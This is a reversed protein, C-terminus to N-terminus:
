HHHLWWYAAINYCTKLSFNKYFKFSERYLSCKDFPPKPQSNGNRPPPSKALRMLIKEWVYERMGLRGDSVIVCYNLEPNELNAKHLSLSFTKIILYLGMIWQLRCQFLLIVCLLFGVWQCWSWIMILCFTNGILLMHCQLALINSEDSCSIVEIAHGLKQSGTNVCEGCCSSIVTRPEAAMSSRSSRSRRPAWPTRIRVRKRHLTTWLLHM